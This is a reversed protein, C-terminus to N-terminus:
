SNNDYVVYEDDPRHNPEGGRSNAIWSSKRTYIMELFWPQKILFRMMKDDFEDVHVYSCAAPTIHEKDNENNETMTM